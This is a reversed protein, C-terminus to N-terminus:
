FIKNLQQGYKRLDQLFYFLYPQVRIFCNRIHANCTLQPRQKRFGAVDTVAVRGCVGVLAAAVPTRAFARAANALDRGDRRRGGRVASEVTAVLHLYSM